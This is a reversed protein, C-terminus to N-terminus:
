AEILGTQFFDEYLKYAEAQHKLVADTLNGGTPEAVKIMEAMANFAGKLMDGTIEQFEKQFEPSTIDGDFETLLKTLEGMAKDLTENLAASGKEAMELAQAFNVGTINFQISISLEISYSQETVATKPELEGFLEHASKLAKSFNVQDAVEQPAAAEQAQVALSRSASLTEELGRGKLQAQDPNIFKSIDM